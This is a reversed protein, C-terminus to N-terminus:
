EENLSKRYIEVIEEKSLEFPANKINKAGASIGAFKEIEEETLAPEPGLLRSLVKGAEETTKVGMTHLIEEVKEPMYGAATKLFAALLLGNARGHDTGHFYTLEYGMSHVATTGAHAIVMGGITSAYLLKERVEMSLETEGDWQILAEACDRFARIGEKAMADSLDTCRRSIMGEVNHSLADIATHITTRRGMKRMYGPDLFSVSPFLLDSSISTKTEKKDNTLIAYQTVESGTGATTPIMVMPPLCDKYNGGFLDEEKIDQSYLLAIAKAADMPSGGGIGVVFDGGCAKMKEAGRYVVEITPNSMIEDFIEYEVQAESLAYLVDELAGNARASHKGTVIFAKKGMKGFVEGHERVCGNGQILRVPMYFGYKM